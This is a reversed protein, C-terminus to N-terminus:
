PNLTEDNFSLDSTIVEQLYSQQKGNNVRTCLWDLNITVLEKCDPFKTKLVKLFLLISTLRQQGDIIDQENNPNKTSLQMTGIFLPEENSNSDIGWFSNFIDAIFKRLQEETWSYPRQYIPIVYSTANDLITAKGEQNNYKLACTKASIKFNNGTGM